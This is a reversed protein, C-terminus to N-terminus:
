GLAQLAEFKWLNANTKKLEGDITAYFVVAKCPSKISNGIAKEAFTPFDVDASEDAKLEM